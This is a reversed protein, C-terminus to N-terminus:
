EQGCLVLGLELLQKFRSDTIPLSQITLFFCANDQAAFKALSDCAVLNPVKEYAGFERTAIKHVNPLGLTSSQLAEIRVM